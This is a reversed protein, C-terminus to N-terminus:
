VPTFWRRCRPHPAPPIKDVDYIEGDAAKCVSCVKEDDHEHRQVRQIGVDKLATIEADQSAFDVYWATMQQFYKVHKDLQIQKQAKTPVSVMAEKARDRKRLVESAYEYHTAENPNELLGSIHMEALEDVTDDIDKPLEKDLWLLMEIYRAVFLEILKKRTNAYLDAYLADTQRLINLEDFGLTILQQKAKEARRLAARNLQALAKDALRYPEPMAM